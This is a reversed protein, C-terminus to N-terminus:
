LSNCSPITCGVEISNQIVGSERRDIDVLWEDGSKEVHNVRTNFSCSSLVDNTRATDQIYEGLIKHSVFEETGPKWKQTSLEMEITSVNNKLAVYAPSTKDTCDSAISSPWSM